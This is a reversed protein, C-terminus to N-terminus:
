VGLASCDQSGGEESGKNGLRFLSMLVDDNVDTTWEGNNLDIDKLDIVKAMNPNTCEPSHQHSEDGTANACQDANSCDLEDCRYRSPWIAGNNNSSEGPGAQLPRIEGYCEVKDGVVFDIHATQGDPQHLIARHGCERELRHVHRGDSLQCPNSQPRSHGHSNGPPHYHASSGSNNTAAPERCPPPSDAVERSNNVPRKKSTATQQEAVFLPADDLTVDSNNRLLEQLRKGENQWAELAFRLQSPNGERVVEHGYGALLM